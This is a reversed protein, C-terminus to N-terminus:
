SRDVEQAEGTEVSRYLADVLALTHLNDELRTPAPPGGAIWEQLAAMPGAFADPLWRTTVPYPVWGDTPLSLSRFELTDPRGHPYDYLLGLTGRVSGESGDIRFEAKPDGVHNEHNVHVLARVGDEFLLTSMTRTEAVARQGPTRSAACFVRVPNGLLSRIADLYHISHFMIELRPAEVLWPWASWDTEIDVTFTVATVQGVLGRRVIERAAAIGEDFRLQQQVAIEVGAAEAEAALERALPLELAFPKQCLMPKGAAIGARVLEPQAWPVVAIDVVGVEPDAFAEEAGAYVRGVGHREAVEAAREAKLDYIGRVPMGVARYAPLHAFDAIAGAGIVAIPRPDRPPDIRAAAALPELLDLM